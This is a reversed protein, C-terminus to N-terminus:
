RLFEFSETRRVGKRYRKEFERRRKKLREEIEEIRQDMREFYEKRDKWWRFVIWAVAADYMTIVFMLGVLFLFIEKM